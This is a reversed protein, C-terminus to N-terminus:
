AIVGQKRLAAIAPADLGLADRLVADTHEGLGPPPTYDRVPTESLHLPNAPFRITGVLPHPQTVVNGRARVQPDAFAQAVDHIPTAPVANEEFAALWEACSRGALIGELLPILTARNRVREFSNAYRADGPLDDRGIARCFRRFSDDTPATVLFVGDAARFSQSPVGTSAENGHREFVMGSTFYNGAAITLASVAGDLLGLDIHQGRASVRDRWNLAVMIASFAYLGGIFDTLPVGMRMPGGGPADDPHGITSMLGSMGQFISDFGPRDAYPGTQGFGTVSCYILRPNLASLSAYDLGYRALDGVKYNEILVDARLALRRVLDQGEPRSLDICVSRKNRNAALYMPALDTMSGDTARYPTGGARRSDDGKGPREVKIVEAGFDGLLQAAAPAALIRSLDLVKLGELARPTAAPISERM